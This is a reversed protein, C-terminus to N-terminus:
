FKGSRSSFGRSNISTGGGGGRSGSSSSQIVQRHETSHTYIDRSISLALGRSDVFDNADTKKRATKMQRKFGECVVFAVVLPAIVVILINGIPVPKSYSGEALKNNTDVPTGAMYQSLMYESCEAYDTFGGYWDDGRFNDLFRESLVEKGYDTFVFNGKGHAVLAYDREAMSLVLVQGSQEEGWGMHYDTFISEGFLEVDHSYAKFDNVIVVYIGCEADASMHALRSELEARQEESLLGAEDTVFPLEAKPNGAYTAYAGQETEAESQEQEPAGAEAAACMQTHFTSLMSELTKNDEAIGGAWASEAFYASVAIAAKDAADTLWQEGESYVCGDVYSVNGESVKLCLTILACNGNTDSGYLLADFYSEALQDADSGETVIDLRLEAGYKSKFEEFSGRGYSELLDGDLLESGDYALGYDWLASAAACLSLCLTLAILLSLIKKM